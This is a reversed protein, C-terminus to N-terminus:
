RYPLTKNLKKNVLAFLRRGVDTFAKPPKGHYLV